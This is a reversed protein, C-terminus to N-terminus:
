VYDYKSRKRSIYDEIKEIDVADVYKETRAGAVPIKMARDSYAYDILMDPRNLDIFGIGHSCFFERLFESRINPRQYSIYDPSNIGWFYPCIAWKNVRDTLYTRGRYQRTIQHHAKAAKAGGDGDFYKTEIGIRGYDDHEVLLDARRTSNHPSIERIATWGHKEFNQELWEQLEKESRLEGCLTMGGDRPNDVEKDALSEVECLHKRNKSEHLTGYAHAAREEDEIEDSENSRLIREFSCEPEVCYVRWDGRDIPM